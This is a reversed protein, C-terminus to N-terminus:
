PEITVPETADAEPEDAEPEVPEPVSGILRPVLAGAVLGLVGTAVATVPYLDTV